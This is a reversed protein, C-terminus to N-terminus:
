GPFGWGWPSYWQMLHAPDKKWLAFDRPDRKDPDQVVDRSEAAAGEILRDVERNGSLKGYGEFSPVSFYVGRETEYAHGTQILREVALIQERMHETARPRVDPEILNLARWDDLLAGTYYRALDWVNAFRRGEPSRLARAMKDEGGADAVDDETLHGVDTINSVYTTKWGIARATRLILDATLFSRFNGIHAYSYVTPGCSYFRLHGPELLEIPEVRHTLTNYLRFPATDSM